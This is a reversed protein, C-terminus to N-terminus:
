HENAREGTRTSGMATMDGTEIFPEAKGDKTKIERIQSDPNYEGGVKPNRFNQKFEIMMPQFLEPNAEIRTSM